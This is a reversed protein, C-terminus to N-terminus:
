SVIREAANESGRVPVFCNVKSRGDFIRAYVHLNEGERWGCQVRLFRHRGIQVGRASVPEVRFRYGPLCRPFARTEIALLAGKWVAFLNRYMAATPLQQLHIVQKM